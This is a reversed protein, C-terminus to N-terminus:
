QKCWGAKCQKNLYWRSRNVVREPWHRLNSQREDNFSKGVFRRSTRHISMIVSQQVWCNWRESDVPRTKSPQQRQSSSNPSFNPIFMSPKWPRMAPNHGDKGIVQKSL